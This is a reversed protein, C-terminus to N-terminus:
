ARQLAECTMKESRDSARVTKLYAGTNSEVLQFNIKSAVCWCVHRGETAGRGGEWWALPCVSHIHTRMCIKVSIWHSIFTQGM